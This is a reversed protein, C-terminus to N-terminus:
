GAWDDYDDEEDDDGALKGGAERVVALLLSATMGDIDSIVALTTDSLLHHFILTESYLDEDVTEIAVGLTACLIALCLYALPAPGEGIALDTVDVNIM